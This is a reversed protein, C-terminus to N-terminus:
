CSYDDLSPHYTYVCVNYYVFYIHVTYIYTDSSPHNCAHLLNSHQPVLLITKFSTLVLRIMYCIKHSREPTGCQNLMWRILEISFTCVYFLSKFYFQLYAVPFISSNCNTRRIDTKSHEETYYYIIIIHACIVSLVLIIIYTHVCDMVQYTVNIRVAVSNRTWYFCKQTMKLRCQLSPSLVM